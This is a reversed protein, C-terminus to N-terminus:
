MFPSGAPSASGRAGPGPPGAGWGPGAGLRAGGRRLKSGVPRSRLSPAKPPRAAAERPGIRAGPVAPAPGLGALFHMLCQLGAGPRVQACRSLPRCAAGLTRGRGPPFLGQSARCGPGSGLGLPRPSCDRGWAPGSRSLSPRPWPQEERPRGAWDSRTVPPCQAWNRSGLALHGPSPPTAAVRRGEPRAGLRSGPGGIREPPLFADLAGFSLLM